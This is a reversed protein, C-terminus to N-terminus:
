PPTVSAFVTVNHQRLSSSMAPPSLVRSIEFRLPLKLYGVYTLTKLIEHLPTLLDVTKDACAYRTAFHQM